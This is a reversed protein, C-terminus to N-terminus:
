FLGAMGQCFHVRSMELRFFKRLDLDLSSLLHPDVVSIHYPFPLCYQPFLLFHQKGAIEEKVVINECPGKKFAFDHRLLNICRERM